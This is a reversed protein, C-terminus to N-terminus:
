KPYMGNPYLFIMWHYLTFLQCLINSNACFNNAIELGYHDKERKETNIYSAHEVDDWMDNKMVKYM